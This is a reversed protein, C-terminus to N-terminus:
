KICCHPLCRGLSEPCHSFGFEDRKDCIRTSAKESPYVSLMSCEYIMFGTNWIRLYMYLFIYLTAVASYILKKNEKFTDYLGILIVPIFWLLHTRSIVPTLLFYITVPILSLQFVSAGKKKFYLFIGTLWPLIVALKTYIGSYITQYFNIGYKYGYFSLFTLFPRGQVGREAHVQITGALYTKLDNLFPLSILVAVLAGGLLWRVKNNSKLFIVPLLIVGFSKLSVSIAFFVGSLFGKKEVHLMGLLLFLVALPDYLVYESRALIHPNFLWFAASVLFFYFDKRYYRIALLWIILMDAILVPVKWMHKTPWDLNIVGNLKVLASQIYLLTPFYAYGNKLETNEFSAVTYKYPNEGSLFETVAKKYTEHDGGIQDFYKIRLALGLFVLIVVFVLRLKPLSIMHKGFRITNTYCAPIRFNGLRTTSFFHDPHCSEFRRGKAGWAFASALQAM